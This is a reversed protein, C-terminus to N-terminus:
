EGSFHNESKQHYVLVCKGLSSILLFEGQGQGWLVFSSAPTSVSLPSCDRYSYYQTRREKDKRFYHCIFSCFIDASGQRLIASTRHLDLCQLWKGPKGRVGVIDGRKVKDNTELFAEESPYHRIILFFTFCKIYQWQDHDSSILKNQSTSGDIAAPLNSNLFLCHWKIQFIENQNDVTRLIWTLILIQSYM